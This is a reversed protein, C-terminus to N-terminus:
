GGACPRPHSWSGGRRPSGLDSSGQGSPPLEDAFRGLEADVMLDSRAPDLAMSVGDPEVTICAEPPRRYDRAGTLRFRDFPITREDDVLLFRDAVPTPPERTM